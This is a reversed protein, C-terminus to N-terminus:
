AGMFETDIAASVHDLATDKSTSQGDQLTGVFIQTDDGKTCRPYGYGSRHTEYLKRHQETTRFLLRRLMAPHALAFSVRDIDLYESARKVCISVNLTHKAVLSGKAWIEVQWGAAELADVYSCVAAGNFMISDAEIGHHHVVSVECRVIKHACESVTVSAMHAPEGAVALPVIPYAGAVDTQIKVFEAVEINEPAMDTSVESMHDRGEPWGYEALLLAQEFTVNGSFSEVPRNSACDELPWEPKNHLSKTFSDWSEHVVNIEAM